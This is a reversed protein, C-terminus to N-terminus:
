RMEQSTVGSVSPVNLERVPRDMEGPRSPAELGDTLLFSQIGVSNTWLTQLASIYDNQVQLLTRQAVLVQPYAATMTQYKKLYLEYARQARPIIQNKYSAAVERSTEYNRILTSAREQLLLKVRQVEQRAREIDAQAAQVNGQNRNFIPLQVGIEAFGQLGVPRGTLEQLERNQQLGGRLQLDPVPDRRARALAAETRQVDLQAIRVAPSESVIKALWEQTDIEPMQELNGALRGPQLNPQGVAAALSRWAQTFTQQAATVDVAAREAEVEAELVDPTDAQGVNFLQHATQAADAAIKSLQQRLSVTTQAALAQYYLARVGYTVRLRQEELEAEAQRREQEFVQQSLGLKGGLVINQQVFFGQEGGRSPGGAIEEGEYGVTPNPYLGAQKRRGEAARIESQAQRLTPNNRVAIQELQELTYTPGAPQQAQQQMQLGPMSGIPPASPPQQQTPTPQPRAQGHPHQMGPMDPMSQQPQQAGQAYALAPWMLLWATSIWRKSM